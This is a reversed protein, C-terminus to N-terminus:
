KLKYADSVVEDGPSQVTLNHIQKNTRNKTYQEIFPSSLSDSGKSSTGHACLLFRKKKRVDKMGSARM